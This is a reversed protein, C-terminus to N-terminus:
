VFCGGLNLCPATIGGGPLFPDDKPCLFWFFWFSDVGAFLGESGAKAFLGVCVSNKAQM